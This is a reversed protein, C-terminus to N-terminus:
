GCMWLGGHEPRQPGRCRYVMEGRPGGCEHGPEGLDGPVRVGRSEGKSEGQRSLKTLAKLQTTVHDPCSERIGDGHRPKFTLKGGKGFAWSHGGRDSCVHCQKYNSCALRKRRVAGM